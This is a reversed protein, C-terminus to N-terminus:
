SRWWASGGTSTLSPMIVAFVKAVLLEFSYATICFWEPSAIIGVSSSLHLCTDHLQSAFKKESMCIGETLM